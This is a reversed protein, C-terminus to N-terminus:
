VIERRRFMILAAWALALAYGLVLLGAGIQSRAIHTVDEPGIIFLALNDGILWDDWAPKLGRILGEVVTLYAFGAGFAAATNRGITALAMGFAAALSAGAGIRLVMTATDTVWAPDVGEMTGRFAAAPYMLVAFVLQLLVVWVFAITTAAVLKAVLVRGRRPEWTLSTTIGRSQWEAGVSSAGLLWALMVLPFGLTGLIWTMDEYRFRPDESWVEDECYGRPDGIARSPLTEGGAWTGNRVQSICSAVDAEHQLEVQAVKAESNDSAFFASTGAIVAGLIALVTLWRLLKRAGLRRIEVSLLTKM